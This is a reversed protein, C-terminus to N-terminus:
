TNVIIAAPYGNTVSPFCAVAQTDSLRAIDVSNIGLHTGDILYGLDDRNGGFRPKTIGSMAVAEIRTARTYQNAQASLFEARGSVTQMYALGAVPFGARYPFWRASGAPDYPLTITSGSISVPVLWSQATAGAIERTLGIFALSAGDHAITGFEAQFSVDSHCLDVATGASLASGSDSIVVARPTHISGGGSSEVWTLLSTTATM